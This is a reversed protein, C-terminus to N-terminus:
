VPKHLYNVNHGAHSIIPFDLQGWGDTSRHVHHTQLGVLPDLQHTKSSWVFLKIDTVMESVTIINNM